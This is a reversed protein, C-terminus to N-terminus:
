HEIIILGEFKVIESNIIRDRERIIIDQLESSELWFECASDTTNVGIEVKFKKVEGGVFIPMQLDFDADIDHTTKRDKTSNSNGRGDNSNIIDTTITAKFKLLTTVLLPSKDQDAFFTKNMKIFKALDQTTWMTNTNIKFKQLDENILLTGVIKAALPNEPNADFTIKMDKRSYVVLSEKPVGTRIAHFNAPAFINGSQEIKKNQLLPLADGTRILLEKQDGEIKLNLTEM